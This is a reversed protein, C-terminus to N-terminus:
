RQFVKKHLYRIYWLINKFEDGFLVFTLFFTLFIYIFMNVLNNEKLGLVIFCSTILVIYIWEKIKPFYNKFDFCSIIYWIINSILTMVAYIINKKIFFYGIADLLFAILVVFLVRNFYVNQKGYAKYLNIYISNVNISWIQSAFLLVVVPISPNYKHLFVAIFEKIPFLCCVFLASIIMLYRRVVIIGNIDEKNICFYNYLSIQFPKTINILMQEITVAFSYFAFDEIRAGFKVFWRDISSLFNVMINGILLLFGNKIGIVINSLINQCIFMKNGTYKIELIAVVLIDSLIYMLIYVMYNDSQFFFILIINSFFKLLSVGIIIRSYKKFEGTAQFLIKYFSIMNTFLITMCVLLVSKSEIIFAVAMMVIQEVFLFCRIASSECALEKKNLNDYKVGGYKISIADITGLHFIGLFNYYLHFTKIHSYSDISLFKPLVINNILGLFLGITNVTLISLLGSIFKKNRM